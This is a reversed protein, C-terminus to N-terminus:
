LEFSVTDNYFDIRRGQELAEDNLRFTELAHNMSNGAAQYAALMDCLKQNQQELKAIDRAQKPVMVAAKLLAKTAASESLHKKLKEVDQEESETPRVTYQAM